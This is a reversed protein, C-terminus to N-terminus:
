SGALARHRQSARTSPPTSPHEMLSKWPALRHAAEIGYIKTVYSSREGFFQGDQTM